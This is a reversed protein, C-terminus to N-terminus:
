RPSIGIQNYIRRVLLLSFVLLLIMSLDFKMVFKM